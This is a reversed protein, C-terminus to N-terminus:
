IGAFAFPEGSTLVIRFPIKRKGEKKCEYFSDALVLCRREAFDRRFTARERLTEARVNIIGERTAVKALWSPRLGWAVFQITQPATNLIVPSSQSPAAKYRPTFRTTDFTAGFRQEIQGQAFSLGFRGCM